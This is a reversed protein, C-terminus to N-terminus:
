GQKLHQEIRKRIADLAKNQLEYFAPRLYPHPHSGWTWHDKPGGKKDGWKKGVGTWKWPTKRGRGNEAHIGTGYEVYAAYKTNTGVVATHKEDRLIDARIHERLNGTDVPAKKKAGGEVVLAGQLLADDIQWEYLQKSAERLKSIADGTGTIEIGTGPSM